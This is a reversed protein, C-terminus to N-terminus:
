SCIVSKRVCRELSLNGWQGVYSCFGLRICAGKSHCTAGDGILRYRSVCSCVYSGKTNRCLQSCNGNRVSCEDIDSVCLCLLGCVCMRVCVGVSYKVSGYDM